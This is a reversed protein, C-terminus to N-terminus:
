IRIFIKQRYMWYCMLWFVLGTMNAQVMPAFSEGYFAFLDNGLHTKLTRATWPRLVMGMCYIAISNTGVVVLPFALIRLRLIDFALYMAALILCCWGTSFIAWSPTWIRKVLPCIGIANMEYGVALGGLGAIVLISLKWGASRNSRLLEGCMLGFLMTVLSPIFNITQYGGENYTFPEELPFLNLFRRDIAHGVNANKHWAPSIGQLHNQAWVSSVGVEPSGTEVNIGSSSYSVFLLWTVVLIAVATMAQTRITRGWLLFLLTYGLGIQTLVNMFSWTTFSGGNSILFIGLFVLVVSRWMAHGLMRLYAQGEQKRRVYSYAMSVGVMFMFSPQILDWYSCGVWQAHSFQYQVAEWTSSDPHDKLQLRATEALGFGGFALTTMILGRYADLSLLRQKVFNDKEQESTTAFESDVPGTASPEPPQAFPSETM